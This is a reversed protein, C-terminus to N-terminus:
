TQFFYFICLYRKLGSLLDLMFHIGLVFTRSVLRDKLGKAIPWDKKFDDDAQISELDLVLLEWSKIISQLSTYDSMVWRERFAYHLEYLDLNAAIAHNRLHAKRKYSRSNYFNVVGTITDDFINMFPNAKLAAKVALEIRHPMCWVTYIRNNEFLEKLKVVFGGDKGLNVSAGDSGFGVLNTKLYGFSDRVDKKLAEEFARLLGEASSDAGVEILKYFYVVPKEKELTQILVTLYHYLGLSTSGDVIISCPYNNTLLHDLLIKHMESSIFQTMRLAGEKNAHHYGINVGNLEQLDVMYRHHMFPINIRVEAYVTKMMQSTIRMIHDDRSEENAQVTAMLTPLENKQSKMLKDVTNLHSSTKPHQNIEDNNAKKTSKLTGSPNAMLAKYRSSLKFSDYYDRCIRCGYKSEAPNEENFYYVFWKRLEMDTAIKHYPLIDKQHNKIKEIWSEQFHATNEWENPIIIEPIEQNNIVRESASQISSALDGKDAEYLNRNPVCSDQNILNMETQVYRDIKETPTNWYLENEYRSWCTQPANPDLNEENEPSAVNPVRPFLEMAYDEMIFHIGNCDNETGPTISGLKFSEPVIADTKLTCRNLSLDANELNFERLNYQRGFLVPALDEFSNCKEFPAKGGYVVMDVLNDKIIQRFKIDLKIYPKKNTLELDALPTGEKNYVLVIANLYKRGNNIFSDLTPQGDFTQFKRRFKINSDTVV